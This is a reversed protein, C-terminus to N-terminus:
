DQNTQDRGEIIKKVTDNMLFAREKFEKYDESFMVEFLKPGDSLEVRLGVDFEYDVKFPRGVIINSLSRLGSSSVETVLFTGDFKRVTYDAGFIGESTVSIFRIKGTEGDDFTVCELKAHSMACGAHDLKEDFYKEITAETQKESLGEAMLLTTTLITALMTIIIKKM